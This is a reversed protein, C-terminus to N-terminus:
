FRMKKIKVECKENKVRIDEIVKDFYPKGKDLDPDREAILWVKDAEMQILPLVVRDIEFGVPSIHIRRPYKIKAAM